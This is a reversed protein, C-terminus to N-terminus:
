SRTLQKDRSFERINQFGREWLAKQVVNRICRAFHVQRKTHAAWQLFIYRLRGQYHNGHNTDTMLAMMRHRQALTRDRQANVQQTANILDAKQRQSDVTDGQQVLGMDNMEYEMREISKKTDNINALAKWHKMVGM